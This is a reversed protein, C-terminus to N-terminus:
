DWDEIVNRAQESTALRSSMEAKQDLASSQDMWREYVTLKERLTEASDGGGAEKGAQKVIADYTMIKGTTDLLEKPVPVSPFGAEQLLRAMEYRQHRSLDIREGNLEEVRTKFSDAWGDLVTSVGYAKTIDWAARQALEAAEAVPLKDVVLGATNKMYTRILADTADLQGRVESAAKFEIGAFDGFVQAADEFHQTGHRADLRAADVLTDHFFGAMAADFDDTLRENGTFTRLFHYTDGPSLYFAPTMGPIDSWASPRSMSSERYIAKDLRTGSVLEHTYSKAILAMSGQATLPAKEGFGGVAVIADYAFAAAEASHGGPREATAEAGSALARGFAGAVEDGTGFNAAYTVFLKMKDQRTASSQAGGMHDFAHRAASGDGDLVDMAVAVLDSSRGFTIATSMSAARFDQNPDRVFDDLVLARAAQSRLDSPADAGALLVLRNWAVDRAAPQVLDKRVQEFAPVGSPARLAAGLAKSFAALDEKATKSGSAAILSPLADRVAPPLTAFFAAAAHPNDALAAVEDAHEHILRARVDGTFNTLIGEGYMSALGRADDFADLQDPLTLLPTNVGKSLKRITEVRYALMSIQSKGWQSIELIERLPSTDIDNARFRQDFEQHFAALKDAGDRLTSSMAEMAAPDIGCFEGAPKTM